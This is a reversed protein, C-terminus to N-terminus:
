QPVMFIHQIEPIKYPVPWSYTEYGDKFFYLNKHEKDNIIIPLPTIGIVERGYPDKSVVCGAPETVIITRGRGKKWIVPCLTQEGEKIEVDYIAKESIYRSWERNEFRFHYNGAKYSIPEGYKVGIRVHQGEDNVIYAERHSYRDSFVVLHGFGQQKEIQKDLTISVTDVPSYTYTVPSYTYPYFPYETSEYGSKGVTLVSNKRTSVALTCPTIESYLVGDVAVWCSDPDTKITVYKFKKDLNSAPLLKAFLTTTEGHKIEVPYSQTESVYETSKFTITYHGAPISKDFLKNTSGIYIDDLYVLAGPYNTAVTLYGTLPQLTIHKEVVKGKAVTLNINVPVFHDSTVELDISGAPIPITGDSYREYYHVTRSHDYDHNTELRVIRGGMHVVPNFTLDKGNQDPQVDLKLKGYLPKLSFSYEHSRAARIDVLTDVPEYGECSVAVRHTGYSLDHKVDATFPEGDVTISSSFPWSHITLPSYPRGDQLVDLNISVGSGTAKVCLLGSRDEPTNNRYVTIAIKDDFQEAFCWEPFETIDWPASCYVTVTDTKGESPAQICQHSLEFHIKRKTTNKKGKNIQAQLKKVKKTDANVLTKAYNLYEEAKDYEGKKYYEEAKKYRTEFNVDQSYAFVSVFLLVFITLLRKM